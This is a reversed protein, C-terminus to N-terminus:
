PPGAGIELPVRAIDPEITSNNWPSIVAKPILPSSRIDYTPNKNTQGITDLGIHYGAELLDPIAINKSDTNPNLGTWQNYVDKPLLESPNAIPQLKYQNSSDPTVKSTSGATNSIEVSEDNSDKTSSDQNYMGDYWHTKSFSYSYLAALLIIAIIAIFINQSTLLNLGSM